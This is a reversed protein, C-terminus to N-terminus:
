PNILRLRDHSSFPSKFFYYLDGKNHIQLIPMVKALYFLVRFKIKKYFENVFSEPRM